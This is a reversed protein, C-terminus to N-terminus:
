QYRCRQCQWKEARLWFIFSVAWIDRMYRIRLGKASQFLGCVFIFIRARSLILREFPILAIESAAGGNKPRKKFFRVWFHKVFINQQPPPM